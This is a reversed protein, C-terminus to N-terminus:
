KAGPKTGCGPCPAGITAPQYTTGCAACKIQGLPQSAAAGAPKAGQDKEAEEQGDKVGKKFESVSSGLSRAVNPLKHGFILLAVVLIIVMEPLGVNQLFAVPLMMQLM